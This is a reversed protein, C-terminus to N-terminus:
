IRLASRSSCPFIMLIKCIYYPIVSSSSFTCITPLPPPPCSHSQIGSSCVRLQPRPGAEDSEPNRSDVQEGAATFLQNSSVLTESGSGCHDPEGPDPDTNPIRIRLRIWFCPFQGFNVFVGSRLGKLFYRRVLYPVRHKM